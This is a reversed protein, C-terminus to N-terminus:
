DTLRYLFANARKGCREIRGAFELIETMLSADTTRCLKQLEKRTFVEPLGDPIFVDYDAKSDLRIEKILRLPTKEKKMGKRRIRRGDPYYTKKEIELMAIRITLNPNTLYAKIRYLELFLESFSNDTRRSSSIIEGTKENVSYSNTIKEYPYVVTVHCARLMQSLKRGLKGFNATQIEFIGNEGAADAYFDGIKAEHDCEDCYYCKLTNHITKENLTGITTRERALAKLRANEFREEDTDTSLPEYDFVTFIENQIFETVGCCDNSGIVADAAARVEPIANAVAYCRDSVSFMPLDNGNDGFSVVEDAGLMEKLQLVANSKGAASSFVEYWHEDPHYTDAYYVSSFGNEQTFVRDLEEKHKPNIFVAYFVEGDFLGGYDELPRMRRDGKRDDIYTKLTPSGAIHSNRMEGDIFSHIMPQEGLREVAERLLESQKKGFINKRVYEQKETDYIFVGNMLIVPVKFSVESMIKPASSASRATCYSIVTGNSIFDNLMDATRPKLTGASSLLTGDLDSIYLTM